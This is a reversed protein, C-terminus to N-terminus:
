HFRQERASSELLTPSLGSLRSEGPVPFIRSEVTGSRPKTGTLIALRGIWRCAKMSNPHRTSRIQKAPLSVRNLQQDESIILLSLYAAM